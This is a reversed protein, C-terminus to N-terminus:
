SRSRSVCFCAERCGLFLGDVKSRSRWIELVSTPSFVLVGREGQVDIDTDAGPADLRGDFEGEWGAM